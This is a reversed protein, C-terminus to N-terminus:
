RQLGVLELAWSLLRQVRSRTIPRVPPENDAQTPEVERSAASKPQHTSDLPPLSASDLPTVSTITTASNAAPHLNGDTTFKERIQYAFYTADVGDPRMVHAHYRNEQANEDAWPLDGGADNKARVASPHITWASNQTIKKATLYAWGSFKKKERYRTEAFECRVKLYNVVSADIASQGLRDVSFERGRKEVFNSLKLGAFPKQDPAGSLKPEDFLRRGIHEGAGIPASDNPTWRAM